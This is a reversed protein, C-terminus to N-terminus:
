ANVNWGKAILITELTTGSVSNTNSYFYTDGRSPIISMANAWPESATYGALTMPNSSLSIV